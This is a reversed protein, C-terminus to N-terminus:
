KLQMPTAILVAEYYPHRSGSYRLKFDYGLDLSELYPKLEYYEEPTHYIASIIVPKQTKLTHLAGRLAHPEFGEIDLKILGVHLDHEHVFDDITIVDVEESEPVFNENRHEKYKPTNKDDFLLSYTSFGSPKTLTMRDRHEGLAAQTVFTCPTAREDTKILDAIIHEQMYKINSSAPEIAYLKSQPFLEHLLLVTDGIYAGGDIIDKGNIYDLVQPASDYLGYKNVYESPCFSPLKAFSPPLANSALLQQWLQYRQQDETTFAADNRVMVKSLMPLLDLMDEMHDVIAASIDDLGAKLTNALSATVHQRRYRIFQSAFVFDIQQYNEYIYHGYEAASMEYTEGNTKTLKLTDM